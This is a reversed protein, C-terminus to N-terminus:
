RTTNGEAAANLAAATKRAAARTTITTEVAIPYGSADRQNHDVVDWVRRPTGDDAEDDCPRVGYRRM